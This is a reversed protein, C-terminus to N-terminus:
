KGCKPCSLHIGSVTFGQDNCYSCVAGVVEPIIVEGTTSPRVSDPDASAIAITELADDIQYIIARFGCNCDNDMDSSAPCIGQATRLHGIQSIFQRAANLADDPSTM